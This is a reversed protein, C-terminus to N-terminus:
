RSRQVISGSQALPRHTASTPPARRHLRVHVTCLWHALSCTHAPPRQTWSSVPTPQATDVGALQAKPSQRPGAPPEPVHVRSQLLAVSQGEPKAQVRRLGPSGFTHTSMSFGHVTPPVSHAVPRHRLACPQM